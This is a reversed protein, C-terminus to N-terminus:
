TPSKKQKNTLEDGNNSVACRLAWVHVTYMCCLPASGVDHACASFFFLGGALNRIKGRGHLCMYGDM